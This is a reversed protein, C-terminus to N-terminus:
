NFLLSVFATIHLTFWWAFSVSNSINLYKTRKFHMYIMLVDSLVLSFLLLMENVGFVSCYILFPVQLLIGSLMVTCLHGLYEMKEPIRFLPFMIIHTIWGTGAFLLMALGNMKFWTLHSLSEGMWFTVLVSIVVCLSIYVLRYTWNFEPKCDNEVKGYVPAIMKRNYSFIHYLFDISYYLPPWLFVNVIKGIREELVWLMGKVGYRTEKTEKDLVAIENCYRTKDLDCVMSKEITQLPNLQDSIGTGSVLSAGARCVRCGNDFFIIKNSTKM